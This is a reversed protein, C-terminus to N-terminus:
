SGRCPLPPRRAASSWDRCSRGPHSVGGRPAGRGPVAAPLPPRRSLGASLEAPRCRPRGGGGPMRPAPAPAAPPRPAPGPGGAGRPPSRCRPSRRATGGTSRGRHQALCPSLSPKPGGPQPHRPDWPARAGPGGGPGRQDSRGRNAWGHTCPATVLGRPQPVRHRGAGLGAHWRGRAAAPAPGAGAPEPGGPATQARPRPCGGGSSPARQWPGRPPRIRAGRSERDSAGRGGRPSGGPRASGSPAAGRASGPCSRNGDGRPVPQPGGAGARPCGAGTSSLVRTRPHTCACPPHM